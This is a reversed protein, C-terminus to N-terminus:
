LGDGHKGTYREGGTVTEEEGGWEQVDRHEQTEWKHVAVPGAHQMTPVKSSSPKVGGLHDRRGKCTQAMFTGEDGDADRGKGPLGGSPMGEDGGQYPVRDSLHTTGRRRRHSRRDLEVQGGKGEWATDDSPSGAVRGGDGERLGRVRGARKTERPIDAGGGDDQM